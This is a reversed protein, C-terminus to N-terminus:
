RERDRSSSTAPRSDPVPNRTGGTSPRVTLAAVYEECLHSQSASSPRAVQGHQPGGDAPVALDGVQLAVVVLQDVSATASRDAASRVPAAGPRTSADRAPAPRQRLVRDPVEVPDRVIRRATARCGPRATHPAAYSPTPMGAQTPDALAAASRTM